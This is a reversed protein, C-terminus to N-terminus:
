GAVRCSWVDFGGFGGLIVETAAPEMSTSAVLDAAVDANPRVKMNRVRSAHFDRRVSGIIIVAANRAISKRMCTSIFTCVSLITAKSTVPGWQLRTSAHLAIQHVLKRRENTVWNTQASLVVVVHMVMVMMMMVMAAAPTAIAVGVVVVVIALVIIVIQILQREAICRVIVIIVDVVVARVIRDLVILVIGVRPLSDVRVILLVIRGKPPMQRHFQIQVFNQTGILHLKVISHILSAVPPSTADHLDPNTHKIHHNIASLNFFYLYM